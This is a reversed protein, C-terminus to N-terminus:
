KNLRRTVVRQTAKWGYLCLVALYLVHVATLWGPEAAGYSLVRGLETGHWLPSIWGIFVNMSEGSEVWTVSM